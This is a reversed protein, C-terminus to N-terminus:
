VFNIDFGTNQLIFLEIAGVSCIGVRTKALLSTEMGGHRTIKTTNGTHSIWM